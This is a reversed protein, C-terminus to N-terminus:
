LSQLNTLNAFDELTLEEPRIRADIHYDSFFKALNESPVIDKLSNRLTKRRKNFAARIIKFLLGESGVDVAPERRMELCLFSSDVKPAPNFSTNKISFLVAPASYYQVFCSFSGYDKSGAKASIRVAFEKQVTLFIKSLIDRYKLLHAIIPSAIYYPINGIVKIKKRLSGFYSKLDLKLIDQNIIKINKFDHLSDKLMACLYADVEVAYVQKVQAAILGTIEGRGAGIELVTETKQLQCHSVIKRRINADALFNQGLSKKPKHYM